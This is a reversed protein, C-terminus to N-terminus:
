RYALIALFVYIIALLLLSDLYILILKKDNM